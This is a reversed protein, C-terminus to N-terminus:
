CRIRDAHASRKFGIPKSDLHVRIGADRPARKEKKAAKLVSAAEDTVTFMHQSVTTVGGTQNTSAALGSECCAELCPGTPRAGFGLPAFVRLCNFRTRKVTQAGSPCNLGLPFTQLSFDFGLGLFPRSRFLM